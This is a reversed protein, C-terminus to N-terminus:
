FMSPVSKAKLTLFSLRMSIVTKLFEHQFEHDVLNFSSLLFQLFEYESLSTSSPFLHGMIRHRPDFDSSLSSCNSLLVDQKKKKERFKRQRVQNLQLKRLARKESTQEDELKQLHATMEPIKLPGLQGWSKAALLALRSDCLQTELESIRKQIQVQKFNCKTKEM